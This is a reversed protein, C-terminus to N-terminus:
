HLNDHNKETGEESKSEVVAVELWWKIIMVASAVFYLDFCVVFHFMDHSILM